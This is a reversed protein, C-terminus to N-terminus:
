PVYKMAERYALGKLEEQEVILRVWNPNWKSVERLSWGIAKQIFFEKKGKLQHIYTQQLVLDTSEKFKLQYLLCTRNLWLSPHTIWEAIIKPMEEPYKKAYKGVVHVAIGDITDWWSQNSLLFYIEDIDEKQYSKAPWTMLWDLAFQHYEREEKLWLERVLEWAQKRSLNNPLTTKWSRLVERRPTSMIGLFPFNNKMYNEMGQIRSHDRVKQFRLELDDVYIRM